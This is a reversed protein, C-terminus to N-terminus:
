TKAERLALPLNSCFRRAADGPALVCATLEDGIDPERVATHGIGKAGAATMLDCLAGEDPVSVIVLYNSDSMWRHVVDPHQHSFEFAAHVAQAAQLGPSLDARVAVYLRDLLLPESM